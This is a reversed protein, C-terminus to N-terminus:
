LKSDFGLRKLANRLDEPLPAVFEVRKGGRPLDFAIKWAHLFQRFLDSAGDGRGYMEDGAVPFGLFALHVRIQHTRGTQPEAQILTYGDLNARTRYITVAQRTKGRTVVKM